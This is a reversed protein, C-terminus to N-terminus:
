LILLLYVSGIYLVFGRYLLSPIIYTWDDIHVRVSNYNHIIINVEVNFVSKTLSESESHHTSQANSTIWEQSWKVDRQAIYVPSAQFGILYNAIANWCWGLKYQM